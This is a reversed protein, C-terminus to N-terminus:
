KQLFTILKLNFNTNEILFLCTMLYLSLYMKYIFVTFIIFALLFFM